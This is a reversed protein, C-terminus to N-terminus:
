KRDEEMQAAAADDDIPELHDVWSMSGKGTAGHELKSRQSFPLHGPAPRGGQARRPLARRRDAHRDRPRVALVIKVTLADFDPAPTRSCGGSRRMSPASITASRITWDGQDPFVFNAARRAGGASPTIEAEARELAALAQEWAVVRASGREAAGLVPVAFAAGLVARRTYNHDRTM